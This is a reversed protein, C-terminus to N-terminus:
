GLRYEFLGASAEGRRRREINYSGFKVKRFDRLRASISQEHDGTAEAIEGLTRWKGDKVLDFVRKLQKTLRAGDQEQVFTAGDFNLEPETIEILQANGM